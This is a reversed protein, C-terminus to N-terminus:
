ERARDIYGGTLGEGSCREYDTRGCRVISRPDMVSRVVGHEDDIDAKSGAPGFVQREGPRVFTSSDGVALGHWGRRSNAILSADV